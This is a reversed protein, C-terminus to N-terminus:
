KVYNSVAGHRARTTSLVSRTLAATLDNSYDIRYLTNSLSLWGYTQNGSAGNWGFAVPLNARASMVALDNAFSMREVNSIDPGNTNGGCWWGYQSTSLGMLMQKALSTPGRNVTTNIDNSFDM